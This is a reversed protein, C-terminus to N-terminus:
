HRALATIPDLKAARRAPLYCAIFSVAVLLLSIGVFTVPDSASVGFLLNALLRAPLRGRAGAGDVALGDLRGLHAALVAEVPGLEEGPALTM